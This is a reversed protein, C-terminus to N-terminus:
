SNGQELLRCVYFHTISRAMSDITFRQSVHKQLAEARRVYTQPNDLFNLMETALAGVDDVPILAVDSGKVIEPIGGVRTAIFPLCAAAAELVIYPLSEARSPIVLCRGRSFAARAPTPGAFTVSGALKLKRALKQFNAADPGGGAIFASVDHTKNAEALAELFVDVGKLHRLEGVYVFEVANEDLVVSYFEDARLGNHIIRMECPFPGVNHHYLESSYASEFILGDTKKGLWRELAMFIRGQLSTPKYHLSGGHPTYFARIKQGANKLASAALRTYAGGKAGHGHLIQVNAERAIRQIARSVLIDRPGPQRNMPIRTVGLSCFNEALNRLSAEAHRGATRADCVVGVDHGM